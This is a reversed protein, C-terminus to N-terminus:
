RPERSNSSGENSRPVDKKPRRQSTKANVNPTVEKQLQLLKQELPVLHETEVMEESEQVEIEETAEIEDLEESKTKNLEFKTLNEFDRRLFFKERTFGSKADL